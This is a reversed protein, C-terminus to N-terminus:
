FKGAFPGSQSYTVRCISFLSVAKMMFLKVLSSATKFSKLMVFMNLM